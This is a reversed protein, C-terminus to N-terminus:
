LPINNKNNHLFIFIFYSVYLLLCRSFIDKMGKKWVLTVCWLGCIDRECINGRILLMYVYIYICIYIYM